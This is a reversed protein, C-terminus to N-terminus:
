GKSAAALLHPLVTPAKPAGVFFTAMEGKGKVTIAGRAELEFHDKVLNATVESIHVSGKVGHSEMRSATNVTDGWLDYIFKKKGIVGAVVPGSHVGIRIAIGYGKEKNLAELSDRMRIAMRVALEAHDARVKPLGAAVMYADGITKIKELGYRDALDDFRSFVENLIRVLEDPPLRASLETFGVIDAFVVSVEAFGDAISKHGSKLRDSISAPLINLLLSESREHEVALKGEAERTDGDSLAGILILTGFTSVICAIRSLAAITPDIQIVAESSPMVLVFYLYLLLSLGAFPYYFWDRRPTVLLVVAAFPFFYYHFGVDPGLYRAVIAIQANCLFLFLGLAFRRRGKAVWLPVSAQLAATVLNVVLPFWFKLPDTWYGATFGLNSVCAVMGCQNLLRTKREDESSMGATGAASVRSWFQKM